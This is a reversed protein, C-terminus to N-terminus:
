AEVRQAGHQEQARVRILRGPFDEVRAHAEDAAQADALRGAGGPNPDADQCGHNAPFGAKAGVQIPHEDATEHIPDQSAGPDGLGVAPRPVTNISVPRNM